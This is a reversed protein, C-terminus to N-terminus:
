SEEQQNKETKGSISEAQGAGDDEGGPLVGPNKKVYEAVYERIAEQREERSMETVALGGNMNINQDSKGFVRDLMSNFNDMRGAKFDQLYARIFLRIMMPVRQDMLKEKLQVEDMALVQKMMLRVDQIGLNNEKIYKRLKSPKRGKNAPQYTSSFKKLNERNPNPNAM